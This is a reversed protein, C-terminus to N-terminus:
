RMLSAMGALVDRLGRLYHIRLGPRGEIRAHRCQMTRALSRRSVLRSIRVAKPKGTHNDNGVMEVVATVVLRICTIKQRQNMRVVTSTFEGEAYIAAHAM